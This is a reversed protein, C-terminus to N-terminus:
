KLLVSCNRRDWRYCFYKMKVTFYIAPLHSCLGSLRNCAIFFPREM